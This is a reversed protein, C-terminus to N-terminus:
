SKTKQLESMAQKSPIQRPAFPLEVRESLLCRYQAKTLQQVEFEVGELKVKFLEEFMAAMMRATAVLMAAFKSLNAMGAFSVTGSVETKAGFPCRYRYSASKQM